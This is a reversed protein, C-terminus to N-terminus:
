GKTGFFPTWKVALFFALWFHNTTMVGASSSLEASFDETAKVPRRAHMVRASAKSTTRWCPPVGLWATVFRVFSSM